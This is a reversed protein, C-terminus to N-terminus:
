YKAHIQPLIKSIGLFLGYGVITGVCNAALDAFDYSRQPIFSQILEITYGYGISLIISVLMPNPGLFKLKKNSIAILGMLVLVAFLFLHVAKDISIFDWHVTPIVRGPLLMLLAIFLIWFLYLKGIHKTLFLLFFNRQSM